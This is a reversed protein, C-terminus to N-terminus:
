YTASYVPKGDANFPVTCSTTERVPTGYANAADYEISVTISNQLRYHDASVREYTSPSRLDRKIVNECATVAENCGTLLM